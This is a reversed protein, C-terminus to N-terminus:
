ASFVERGHEDTAQVVRGFVTNTWGNQHGRNNAILYGRPGTQVIKHADIIRGRVRCFVIDGVRYEEAVAFRCVAPNPLIPLMSNGRCTMTVTGLKRLQEIAHEYRGM